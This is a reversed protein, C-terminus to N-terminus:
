VAVGASVTYTKKSKEKKKKGKTCLCSNKFKYINLHYSYDSCVCFDSCKGYISHKMAVELAVTTERSLM